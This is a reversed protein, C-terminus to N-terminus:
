TLRRVEVRIATPMRAPIGGQAPHPNLSTASRPESICVEPVGLNANHSRRVARSAVVTSITAAPVNFFISMFLNLDLIMLIAALLNALFAFIFYVLGDSFIIRFLKNHLGSASTCRQSQALKYATLCLMVFNFCMAYVFTAALITTDLEVIACGVSPIWTATQVVGQLILSWHGVVILVTLGTIWKNHSWLANTRLALNISALGIAAEVAFQNFVHLVSCNSKFVTDVAILIGILAFLFLYRGAFYLALPWRFQKKGTLVAWDFHFSIIIEWAYLGALAHMFNIFIESDTAM